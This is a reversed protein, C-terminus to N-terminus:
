YLTHIAPQGALLGAMATLGAWHTYGSHGHILDGGNERCVQVVRWLMGPFSQIGRKEPSINKVSVFHIKAWGLSQRILAEKEPEPSSTVFTISHGADVLAQSLQISADIAGGIFVGDVFPVLKPIIMCIHM